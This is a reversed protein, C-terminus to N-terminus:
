EYATHMNGWADYEIVLEVDDDVNAQEDDAEDKNDQENHQMNVGCFFPKLKMHQRHRYSGKTNCQYATKSQTVMDTQKTQEVRSAVRSICVMKYSMCSARQTTM